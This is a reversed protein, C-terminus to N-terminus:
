IDMEEQCWVVAGPLAPLLGQMERAVWSGKNKFFPASEDGPTFLLPQRCPLLTSVWEAAQFLGPQAAASPCPPGQQAEWIPKGLACCVSLETPSLSVMFTESKAGGARWGRRREAMSAYAGPSGWAYARGM